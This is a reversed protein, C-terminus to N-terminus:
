FQHPRISIIITAPAVKSAPRATIPKAVKASHLHGFARTAETTDEPPAAVERMMKSNQGITMPNAKATM